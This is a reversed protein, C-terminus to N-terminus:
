ADEDPQYLFYGAKAQSVAPLLVGLLGAAVLMGRLHQASFSKKGM